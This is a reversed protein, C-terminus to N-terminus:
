RDCAQADSRRDAVISGRKGFICFCLTDEWGLGAWMLAVRAVFVVRMFGDRASLCRECVWGRLFESESGRRCCLVLWSGEM